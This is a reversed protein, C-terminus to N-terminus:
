GHAVPTQWVWDVNRGVGTACQTLAEDMPLLRQGYRQNPKAAQWAQYLAEGLCIAVDEIGHHDDVELDATVALQLNWGAHSALQDLMHDFFPLGTSIQKDAPDGNIDLSLTIQTEKTARNVQIM